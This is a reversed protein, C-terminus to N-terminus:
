YYVKRVEYVNQIIPQRNFSNEPIDSATAGEESGFLLVLFGGCLALSNEVCTVPLDVLLWDFVGATYWLAAASSTHHYFHEFQQPVRNVVLKTTAGSKIAEADDVKEFFGPETPVEAQGTLYMAYDTPIKFMDVDDPDLRHKTAPNMPTTEFADYQTFIVKGFRYRQLEIYYEGDKCYVADGPKLDSTDVAARYSAKEFLHGASNFYCSSLSSSLLLLLGAIIARLHFM